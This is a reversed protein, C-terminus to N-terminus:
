SNVVKTIFKMIAIAVLGKAPKDNSLVKKQIADYTKGSIKWINQDVQEKVFGDLKLFLQCAIKADDFMFSEAVNIAYKLMVVYSKIIEAKKKNSINKEHMNLFVSQERKGTFDDFNIDDKGAGYIDAIDLLKRAFTNQYSFESLEETIPFLLRFHLHYIKKLCNNMLQQILAKNYPKKQSIEDISKYFGDLHNAIEQPYLFVFQLDLQDIKSSISHLHQLIFLDEHVGEEEVREIDSFLDYSKDLISSIGDQVFRNNNHTDNEMIKFNEWISTLTDSIRFVEVMDLPKQLNEDNVLVEINHIKEGVDFINETAVNGKM